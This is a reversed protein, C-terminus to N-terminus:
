TASVDTAPTANTNRVVRGLLALDQGRLTAAARSHLVMDRRWAKRRRKAVAIYAIACCLLVFGYNLFVGLTGKAAGASDIGVAPVSSSAVLLGVPALLLASTLLSRLQIRM